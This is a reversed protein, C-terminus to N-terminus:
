GEDWWVLKQLEIDWSARVNEISLVRFGGIKGDCWSASATSDNQWWYDVLHERAYGHPCHTDAVAM